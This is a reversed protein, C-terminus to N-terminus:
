YTGYRYVGALQYGVQGPICGYLPWVFRRRIYRGFLDEDFYDHGAPVPTHVTYLSSARVVELAQDFSLGEKQIYDVLRQVNILAAHGENCHYIQKKIGLKDLMLIGGIGLLYEQKMRNEWDGGYLQHTISRDWESNQPIDTDLLYLPIRGVSVKWINAYVTRGPYPVEVIMPEGNEEMVQTIPLSSFNQAEYNAIQQGDMSLTQTFYGYRYLFGVACMDINNDSAEKLYDGALIGLGGSYIKLVNTLGYEMSFYAVSPKTADPKVDMYKRFDSYVKKIEAMLEEDALIEEIRQFSLNQLLQVPNGETKKWLVPDIKGFLKAGEHNWVWWLNTSMEKLVELSSPLKSQSYVEKWIPDNSKIKM